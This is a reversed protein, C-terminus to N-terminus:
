VHSRMMQWLSRLKQASERSVTGGAYALQGYLRVLREAETFMPTRPEVATRILEHPTEDPTRPHGRDASWAEFAEFTYRVLEAPSAQRSAGSAFPDHYDRFPRRAPGATKAEPEAQEVVATPRGGFLRALLERLSRVLDALASLLQRRHRWALYLVAGGAVLYFLIKMLGVLGGLANPINQLTEVPKFQTDHEPLLRSTRGGDQEDSETARHPDNDSSDASRQGESASEGRNADSPREGSEGSKGTGSSEGRDGREGSQQGDDSERSDDDAGGTQRNADARDSQSTEGKADDSPQDGGQQDSRQDGGTRQDNEGSGSERHQQDDTAEGTPADQRDSVVEGANSQEDAADRGVSWRSARLGEPSDIEWPLKSIAYEAHPRPVLAAVFMVLVILVAGIAVWTVAMPAPMEVHRQRLYRRLGLFSTTVLLALGAAVYVALLSFAYQRRPVDAAPIFWQGVGFLPLAALSFYLVWLGPTHPGNKPQTLRHWWPRPAHESDELLENATGPSGSGAAPASLSEDVGVRQLLGEGSADQDDDILTCDWTLKHASWWVVAILMLNILPSLPSPHQVFRFLVLFTAVGLPLAFMAARESGMEIAIRAVLVAAFVFLAFVYNLRAQYQGVYLVEILFFVLSGVLAMVLAPSVAIAVYDASTMHLRKAM